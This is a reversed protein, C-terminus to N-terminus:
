TESRPVAPCTSIKAQGTTLDSPNISDPNV